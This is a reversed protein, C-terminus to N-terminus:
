IRAGSDGLKKFDNKTTKLKKLKNKLNEFNRGPDCNRSSEHGSDSDAHFEVCKPIMFTKLPHFKLWKM